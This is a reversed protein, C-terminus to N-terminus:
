EFRWQQELIVYDAFDFCDVRFERGFLIIIVIASTLQKTKEGLLCMRKRFEVEAIQFRQFVVNVFVIQVLHRLIEFSSM